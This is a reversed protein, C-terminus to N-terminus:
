FSSKLLFDFKRLLNSKDFAIILGCDQLKSSQSRSNFYNVVILTNVFFSTLTESFHTFFLPLFLQCSQEVATPVIAWYDSTRNNLLRECSKNVAVPVMIWYSSACNNLQRQCSQEVTVSVIRWCNSARYKLLRQSSQEVTASIITWCDSARIKM